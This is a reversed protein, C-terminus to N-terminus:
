GEISWPYILSLYRIARSGIGMVYVIALPQKTFQSTPHQAVTRSGYEFAFIMANWIDCYLFSSDKIYFFGGFGDNVGRGGRRSRLTM